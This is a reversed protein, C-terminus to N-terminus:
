GALTRTLIDSLDSSLQSSRALKRLAREALASRNPEFTRWNAFGSLIRAALQPNIQDIEQCVEIVFDFGKGDPRAFQGTNGRTFPAILARVRNPNTKPFDASQYIQKIRALAGQDPRAANLALWKDYILADGAASAAFHELMQEAQNTWFAVSADLAAMKDSMSAAGYYQKAALDASMEDERAVLLQLCQNRLSRNQVQDIDQSYDMDSALDHYTSLLAKNLRSSVQKLLKRRALHIKAPDINKELVRAIASEGPLNLALAKFEADLNKNELTDGLAASLNDVQGADFDGGNVVAGAIMSSAISQLGQWRNYPDTDHRALFLRENEDLNDVLKVPASFQRLLSLVPRSSIGEFVLEMQNEDLIIMDNEVVGGSVKKWEMDQGNPGILAFKLPIYFAQKEEQGSTAATIQKLSLTYTKSEKDWEGSASVEPTGAQTYWRSFQDLDHKSSDEFVKLFKEITTAQGDHRKFYLDMGQRFGDEGLLIALMRVVEAGKNYVTATYFNNIQAYQSPRPPHALPGSDEPFQVARLDRADKIRKVPRSRMDSTFEQDRYVTLGEKLCLQFWDRCTIRNGTWNHFYEHAVIREINYYDMDTASDPDALIYKDNFINLSKNEMAGFNFDSVAVINFIDLDYQRGFRTEDWKMARKLADMAYLCQDKKGHECYIALAVKRKSATIFEDRLVGLDGAVLAFLYTPKPHPDDWIAYHRGGSLDGKEVLNGNALLVPALKKDAELRVRYTALVDPRDAMLTIRRFGQAECQTCWVGNSRYLGMLSTNQEPKIAVKTELTFKAAPPQFVHLRENSFKYECAGLQKGDLKIEILELEEGDLVLEAGKETEPSPEITLKTNVFSKEPAIEVKMDLSLINYPFAKYDKLYHMQKTM